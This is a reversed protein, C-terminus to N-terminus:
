PKFNRSSRTKEKAWRPLEVGLFIDAGLTNKGQGTTRKVSIEKTGINPINLKVVHEGNLKGNIRSLNATVKGLGELDYEKVEGPKADVSAIYTKVSKELKNGTREIFVEIM